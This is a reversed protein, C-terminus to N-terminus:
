EAWKKVTYLQYLNLKKVRITVFIHLTKDPFGVASGIKLQEVQVQGLKPNIMRQVKM